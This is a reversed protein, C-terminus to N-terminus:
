LEPIDEGTLTGMDKMDQAHVETVVHLAENIDLKKATTPEPPVAEHRPPTHEAYLRRPYRVRMFEQM